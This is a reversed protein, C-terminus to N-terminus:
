KIPTSNQASVYTKRGGVRGHDATFVTVDNMASVNRESSIEVSGVVTQIVSTRRQPGNSPMLGTLAGPMKTRLKNWFMVQWSVSPASSGSPTCHSPRVRVPQLWYAAISKHSHRPCSSDAVDTRAGSDRQARVLVRESVESIRTRECIIKLATSVSVCITVDDGNRSDSTPTSPAPSYKTCARSSRQSCSTATRRSVASPSRLNRTLFSRLRCSVTCRPSWSSTFFDSPLSSSSSFLIFCSSYLPAPVIAVSGASYLRCCMPVLSIPLFCPSSYM